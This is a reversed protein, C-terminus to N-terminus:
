WYMVMWFCVVVEGCCFVVIFLFFNLIMLIELCNCLNNRNKVIFILVVNCILGVDVMVFSWVLFVVCINGSNWCWGWGWFVVFVVSWVDLMILVCM